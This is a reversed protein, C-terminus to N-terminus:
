LPRACTSLLYMGNVPPTFTYWYTNATQDVVGYDSDTLLLADSCTFGEPCLFYASEGFGYDHGSAVEEGDLSIWYGGPAYIGDGYSDSIHFEM